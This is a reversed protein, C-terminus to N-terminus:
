YDLGTTSVSIEWLRDAAKPDISHQRVGGGFNDAESDAMLRAINVDECYLGGIDALDPSVAAWVQTAAGQSITKFYRYKSRDFGAKLGQFFVPVHIFGLKDVITQQWPAVHFQERGINTLPIMGPHIAFARIGDKQGLEDLKVSFM